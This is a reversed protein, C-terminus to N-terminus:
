YGLLNDEYGNLIEVLVSILSVKGMKKKM